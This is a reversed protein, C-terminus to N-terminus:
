VSTSFLPTRITPIAYQPALNRQETDHRIVLRQGGKIQHAVLLVQSGEAAGVAPEVALVAQSLREDIRRPAGTAVAQLRGAYVPVLPRFRREGVQPRFQVVKLDLVRQAAAAFRRSGARM